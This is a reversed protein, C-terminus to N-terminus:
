FFDTLFIDRFVVNIVTKELFIKRDIINKRVFFWFMPRMYGEYIVRMYGSFDIFDIKLKQGLFSYFLDM